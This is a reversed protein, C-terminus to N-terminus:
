SFNGPKRARLVESPFTNQSLSESEIAGFGAKNLYPAMGVPRCGTLLSPLYKAAWMWVRHYWSKGFAMTSLVVRGGPKLVRHFESLVPVFDSEPLLDLMFNNIVLHFTNSDFPLRYASGSHLRYHEGPYNKVLREAKRLMSPSVDLGDTLGHENRRLLEVFVLGTGVAVELIREGDRIEALEVVKRAADSETLRSWINYFWAVKSYSDRVANENFNRPLIRDM